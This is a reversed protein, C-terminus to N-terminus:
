IISSSAAELNRSRALTSLSALNIGTLEVCSLSGARSAEMPCGAAGRGQSSHWRPGHLCIKTSSDHTHIEPQVVAKSSHPRHGRKHRRTRRLDPRVLDEARTAQVADADPGSWGVSSRNSRVQLQEENGAAQGHRERARDRRDGESYHSGAVTLKESGHAPGARSVEVRMFVNHLQSETLCSERM